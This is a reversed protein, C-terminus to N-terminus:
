CIGCFQEIRNVIHQMYKGPKGTSLDWLRLSNDRSTSFAVRGKPHVAIGTVQGPKHGKLEHICEWGATKWVCLLGDKGGSLIHEAGIAAVSEVSGQHNSLEGVEKKKQLNYIRLLEDTGGSVMIDAKSGSLMTLTKVCSRHATYAFVLRLKGVTADTSSSSSQLHPQESEWGHITGDYCGVVVRLPAM